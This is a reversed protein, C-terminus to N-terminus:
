RCASRSSGDWVMLRRSRSCAIFRALPRSFADRRLSNGGWGSGHVKPLFRMGFRAGSLCVSQSFRSGCRSPIFLCSQSSSWGLDVGCFYLIERM